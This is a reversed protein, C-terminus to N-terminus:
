SIGFNEFMLPFHNRTKRTHSSALLTPGNEWVSTDSVIIYPAGGGDDYASLNFRIGQDQNYTTFAPSTALRFAHLLKWARLNVLVHSIFILSNKGCLHSVSQRTVRLFSAIM